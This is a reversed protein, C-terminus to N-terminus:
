MTYLIVGLSFVDVQTGYTDAILVEPAVYGPTGSKKFLEINDSTVSLGFDILKVSMKEPEGSDKEFVVNELKIDRHLIKHNHLYAVAEMLEKIITLAEKEPLPSNAIVYDLLRQGKGYEMLIILHTPSDFVGHFRCINEHELQRHINIENKLAM